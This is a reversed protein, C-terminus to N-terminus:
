YTAAVFVKWSRNIKRLNRAARMARPRSSFIGFVTSGSGSMLAGLAGSARLDDKLKLITMVRKYQSLELSNNLHESLRKIDGKQISHVLMKVDTKHFTLFPGKLGQYVEQTSIGFPPKVLVHWLKPGSVSIKKLIEGRGRGIAFPTELIFFPVDSGLTAALTMLKEQSLGLKWLRNLGLLVTAANSSGGGLGASVPIRKRILIAVSKRVRFTDKLLQAARYALNTHDSVVREGTTKLLINGSSLKLHITDGLDIREFLTEIEHYGDKLKSLVDLSLNLKAPSFLRM